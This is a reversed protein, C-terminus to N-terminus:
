VVDPDKIAGGRQGAFLERNTMSHNAEDLAAQNM